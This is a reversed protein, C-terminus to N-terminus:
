QFPPPLDVAAMKPETRSARMWQALIIKWHLPSIVQRTRLLWESAEKPRGNLALTQALKFLNDPMPYRQAVDSVWQIDRESMASHPDFRALRLWERMHTLVIVEPVDGNPLNGIRASEFRMALFNQELQGLYDSVIVGFLVASGVGLALVPARATKVIGHAGAEPPHARRQLFIRVLLFQLTYPLLSLPYTEWTGM